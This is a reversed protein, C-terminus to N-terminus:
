FILLIIKLKDEVKRHVALLPWFNSAAARATNAVASLGAHARVTRRVRALRPRSLPEARSAQCAASPGPPARVTRRPPCPSPSSPCLLSPCSCHRRVIRASPGVLSRRPQPRDSSNWPRRRPEVLPLGTLLTCAPLSSSSPPLSHPSSFLSSITTEPEPLHLPTPRPRARGFNRVPAHPHDARVTRQYASAVVPPLLRLDTPGV